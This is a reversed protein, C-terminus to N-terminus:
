EAWVFVSPEITNALNRWHIDWTFCAEMRTRLGFPMEIPEAMTACRVATDDSINPYAKGRLIAGEWPHDSGGYLVHM